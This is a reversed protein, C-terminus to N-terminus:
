FEAKFNSYNHVSTSSTLTKLCVRWSCVRFTTGTSVIVVIRHMVIVQFLNIWWDTCWRRLSSWFAEIRQMHSSLAVSVMYIYRTQFLHEMSSATSMVASIHSCFHFLATRQAM